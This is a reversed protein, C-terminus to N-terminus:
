RANYTILSIIKFFNRCPQYNSTLRLPKGLSVAPPNATGDKRSFTFSKALSAHDKHGGVGEGGGGSLGTLGNQGFFISTTSM